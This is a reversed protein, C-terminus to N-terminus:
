IRGPYMRRLNSSFELQMVRPFCLDKLILSLTIANSWLFSWFGNHHFHGVTHKPGVYDFNELITKVLNSCITLTQLTLRLHESILIIYRCNQVSHNVSLSPTVTSSLWFVSLNEVGALDLSHKNKSITVFLKCLSANLIDCHVVGALWQCCNLTLNTVWASMLLVSWNEYPLFGKDICLSFVM